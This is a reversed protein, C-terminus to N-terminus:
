WNFNIFTLKTQNPITLEGYAYVYYKPTFINLLLIFVLANEVQKFNKFDYNEVIYLLLLFLFSTLRTTDGGLFFQSFVGINLAVIPLKNIRKDFLVILFVVLWLFKLSSFYGIIINEKSLKFFYLKDKLILDIFYNPSYVGKSLFLYVPLYSISTITLKKINMNLSMFFPITFIVTEKTLLALFFIVYPILNRDKKIFVITLLLYSLIDPYGGYILTFQVVMTTSISALLLVTVKFNTKQIFYFYLIILFIFICLINIIQIDLNLIKGLLPLLIRQPQLFGEINPISNSLEQLNQGLSTSSTTINRNVFISFLFILAATTVATILSNKRHM